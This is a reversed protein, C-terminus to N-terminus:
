RGRCLAPGGHGIGLLEDGVGVALQEVKADLRPASLPDLLVEDGLVGFRLVGLHAILERLRVAPEGYRRLAEVPEREGSVEPALEREELNRDDRLARRGGRRRAIRFLRGLERLQDRRHIAAVAFPFVTALGLATAGFLAEVDVGNRADHTLATIGGLQEVDPLSPM